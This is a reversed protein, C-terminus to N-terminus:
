VKLSVSLLESHFILSQVQSDLSSNLEKLTMVCLFLSLNGLYISLIDTQIWCEGEFWYYVWLMPLNLTSLLKTLIDVTM